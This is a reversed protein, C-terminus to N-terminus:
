HGQYKEQKKGRSYTNQERFLGKKISKEDMKASKIKIKKKERGGGQIVFKGLLNKRDSSSKLGINKKGYGRSQCEGGYKGGRELSAIEGM